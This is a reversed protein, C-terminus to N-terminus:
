KLDRTEGAKSTPLGQESPFHLATTLEENSTWGHFRAIAFEFRDSNM